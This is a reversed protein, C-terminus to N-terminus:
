LAFLTPLKSPDGREAAFEIVVKVHRIVLLHRGDFVVISAFNLELSSISGIGYHALRMSEAHEEPECVIHEVGVSHRM